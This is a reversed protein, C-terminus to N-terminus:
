APVRQTNQLMVNLNLSWEPRQRTDQGLFMPSGSADFLLFFMGGSPVAQNAIWQLNGWVQQMLTNAGLYDNMTSRVRIQLLPRDLLSVGAGTGTLTGLPKQGPREFVGVAKDPEDPMLGAFINVGATLALAPIGALYEVVSNSIPVYTPSSM